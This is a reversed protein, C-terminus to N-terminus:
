GWCMAEGKKVPISDVGKQPDATVLNVGTDFFDKGETAKPKEGTKAYEVIAKIGLAAMRLPYQQATASIVGKGVNKVGQCSGDIAVITVGKTKGFSKLTQYAGAAAPENIAYVLNINPNKALLNEMAKQGGQISGGTVDHGVIRPDDEDGWKDPNKIDIGFGKMFGQDRKVGVTPQSVALDLFAIKADKAKDGLKAKAWQGDLEGAHFNDTAFTMDAASAPDLQTDLAIVLLGAKRAKEVTPVIAKTSSATILIGKAGDAMCAEIASVQSENDGDYKGAYTKLSVGLKKAEAKAGEKMKVFYPNSDTKTILCAKVGEAMAPGSAAMALLGVAVFGAGGTKFKRM